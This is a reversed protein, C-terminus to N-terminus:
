LGGYTVTKLNYKKIFRTNKPRRVRLRTKQYLHFLSEDSYVVNKWNEMTFRQYQKCWQVRIKAHKATLLPKKAAIRGMLNNKCLIRQVSRISCKNALDAEDRLEPACKFPDRRSCLCLKRQERESLKTPRGSKQRDLVSDTDMYKLWINRVTTYNLMEIRSIERLSKGDEKRNIISYKTQLSIKGM